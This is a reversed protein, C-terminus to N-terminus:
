DFHKEEWEHQEDKFAHLDKNARDESWGRAKLKKSRQKRESAAKTVWQTMPDRGFPLTLLLAATFGTQQNTSM